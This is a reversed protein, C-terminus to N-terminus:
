KKGRQSQDRHRKKRKKGRGQARPMLREDYRVVEEKVCQSNEMDMDSVRELKVVAVTGQADACPMEEVSVPMRLMRGPKVGWHWYMRSISPCYCNFGWRKHKTDYQLVSTVTQKGKLQPDNLVFGYRGDNCWFAYVVNETAELEDVKLMKALRKSFALSEDRDDLLVYLTCRDWWRKLAELIKNMAAFKSIEM